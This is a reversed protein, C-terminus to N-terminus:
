AAKQKVSMQDDDDRLQGEAELAEIESKRAASIQKIALEIRANLDDLQVLVEDQRRMMDAVMEYGSAAEQSELVEDADSLEAGEPVLETLAVPDPSDGVPDAPQFGIAIAFGDEDFQPTTLDLDSPM